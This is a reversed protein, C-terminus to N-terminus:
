NETQNNQSQETSKEQRLMGNQQGGLEEMYTQLKTIVDDLYAENIDVKDNRHSGIYAIDQPRNELMYNMITWLGRHAADRGFKHHRVCLSIGNQPAYRLSPCLRFDELHHGQVVNTEGCIACSNKDRIKVVSKWLKLAKNKKAKLIRTKSAKKPKAM